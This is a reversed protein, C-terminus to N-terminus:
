KQTHEAVQCVGVLDGNDSDYLCPLESPTLDRPAKDLTWQVFHFSNLNKRGKLFTLSLDHDFCYTKHVVLDDESVTSSM